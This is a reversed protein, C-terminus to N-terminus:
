PIAVQVLGSAAGGYGGFMVSLPYSQMVYIQAADSQLNGVLMSFPGTSSSIRNLAASDSGGLQGTYAYSNSTLTMTIWDGNTTAGQAIGGALAAADPLGLVFQQSGGPTTGASLLAVTAGIVALQFSFPQPTLPNTNIGTYIHGNVSLAYNQLSGPPLSGCNQPTAVGGAPSQCISLTNGSVRATGAYTVQPGTVPIDLTVLNYTGNLQQVTTGFVRAALYPVVGNGLDEGGVILNTAVRFRSTGSVTYGGGTADNTFTGQINKGNGTITYTKADFDIVMTYQNGDAAFVQYTGNNSNVVTATAYFSNNSPTPNTPVDVVLQNTITGNVNQAVHATVTFTLVGGSPLSNVTTLVGVTAPCTAGGSAACTISILSLGNGPNDFANFTGTADPGNNTVTMVFVAQSGGVLTGTPGTGSVVVNTVVSFATATVSSSAQTPDIEEAFTAVMTNQITGNANSDLQVTVSFILAGGTPLSPIVMEVTPASPCTAGGTAACTISILKLQNGLNDIVKINSADYPGANKVTMVFVAKTGSQVQTTPGTGTVVIETGQRGSGAACASLVLPVLLNLISGPIRV